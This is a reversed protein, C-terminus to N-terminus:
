ASYWCPGKEPTTLAGLRELRKGIVEQVGHSGKGGLRFAWRTLVLWATPVLILVAPLGFMIWTLFDITQGTCAEIADKILLNTPTGIYTGLSGISCAWAIGLLLAVLFGGDGGRENQPAIAAAVSLAIPVMMIATATNSIWMSLGAAAAM